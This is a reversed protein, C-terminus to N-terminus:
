RGVGVQSWWIVGTIFLVMGVLGLLPALRPDLATGIGMGVLFAGVLLALQWRTLLVGPTQRVRPTQREVVRAHRAQVDGFSFHLVRQPGTGDAGLYAGERPVLGTGEYVEYRGGIRPETVRPM